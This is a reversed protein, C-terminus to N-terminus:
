ESCNPFPPGQPIAFGAAHTHCCTCRDTGNANFHNAPEPQEYQHIPGFVMNNPDSPSPTYQHGYTQTHCVECIRSTVPAFRAESDDGYSNPGTRSWFVVPRPPLGELEILDKIRSINTSNKMHCTECTFEGYMGGAIGWGMPAWYSSGTTRSNHILKDSIPMIGALTQEATGQVGDPDQYTVRVDYIFSPTTSLGSIVVEGALCSQNSFLMWGSDSNLKYEIKCTNNGNNDKSFPTSVILSYLAPVAIATGAKTMNFALDINTVIQPNNGTIGDTDNFTLRVDYTGSVLGSISATYPSLTHTASTAWNIWTGSSSLKYDISYTNNANADSSYPMSILIASSGDPVATVTEAATKTTSLDVGTAVQPNTGVIGDSDSYTMRVDYEGPQLGTITTNFPSTSHAADTVWNEWTGSSSLKYDITYTNDADADDSFPMSVSISGISAAAATASGVSTMASPQPSYPGSNTGTSYNGHTDEAFIKYYYNEGNTLGNDLFNQLSGAYRVTSTGITAGQSYATGEAPVDLIASSNRLIVVQSFDGDAPNTWNLDIKADLTANGNWVPSGPSLNDITVEASLTDGFIKNTSQSTTIGTVTGTVTYEAGPPSPLDEQTKPTIRVKYQTASTTATINTSLPIVVTDSGPSSVSGYVYSGADNTIQILDLGVTAVAALSVTAGTVTASSSSTNLTFSDLLTASGGPAVSANPPNSGDGVSVSVVPVLPGAAFGQSYNGQTDKAFIKYYYNSYNSLGTETSTQLSGVYRVTSAGITDGQAYSAGESPRDSVAVASRLIIVQNFDADAPNTWNLEVSADGVTVVGWSPDTTSLNDVTVTASSSDSYVKSTTEITTIATVMGTILYQSGPPPPMDAHSKPTVRVHYSTISVSAAINTTLPVVVTESGPNSVSGYVISGNDSTVEVLSLAGSTGSPLSVTMDTLTATGSTTQLTFADLVTGAGGPSIIVSSPDVGNGVTVEAPFPGIDAGPLSFNGKTDRAFIKYFYRQGLPIGTDTFTTGTGAYVVDSSGISSGSNYTAGEVPIDSVSSTNRLILVDAFDTDAPNTWNMAVETANSTITGWAPSGPSLNDVTVTTSSEDNYVISNMSYLETVTGTIAYSAGPPVPMNAHSKPTIRIKYQTPTTTVPLAANFTIGTFAYSPNMNTRYGYVTLGDDSTIDIREINNFSGLPSFTVQLNGVSDTGASTQLTFAHLDTKAEGPGIELDPLATGPAVTTTASSVGDVFLNGGHINSIESPMSPALGNIWLETRIRHGPLFNYNLGTVPLDTAYNWEGWFNSPCAFVGSTGILTGGEFSPCSDNGDVDYFKAYIGSLYPCYFIPSLQLKLSTINTAVSYPPTYMDDALSTATGGNSWSVHYPEESFQLNLDNFSRQPNGFAGSTQNATSTGNCVNSASGTNGLHYFVNNAWAGQVTFCSMIISTVASFASLRICIKQRKCAGGAWGLFARKM